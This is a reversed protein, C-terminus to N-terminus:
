PRTKPYPIDLYEIAEAGNVIPRGVQNIIEKARALQEVNSTGTPWDEIGRRSDGGASDSPSEANAQEPSDESAGADSTEIRVDAVQQDDALAVGLAIWLGVVVIVSQCLVRM